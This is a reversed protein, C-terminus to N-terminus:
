IVFKGNKYITEGDAFIEGSRMDKLLDWHIVSKNQGGSMPFSMGLALHMCYGMKEDFLMNKTFRTIGTNTGIATEGIRDAGDIKLIEDLLDQGKVATAKTVKGEKFTLCIDEVEKGQYIGLYTFRIKGEASNEIPCTFVEGDPQNIKGDCNIWTRGEVNVKLDTDDGVFHVIKAKNLREVIREQVSSVRKWEQIPDTKDLFCAKEVFDEYEFLSMSAEQAYALTPFPIISLSGPKAHKRYIEMIEAQSAHRDKIRQSPVSTLRKVNTESRIGIFGDITEFYHRLIPSAYTLQKESAHAYFSEELGDIDVRVEPYAGKLVIHKYLQQILPTAIANGAIGIKKGESVDLSYETVLKAMKESNFL